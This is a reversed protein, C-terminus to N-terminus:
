RRPARRYRQPPNRRRLEPSWYVKVRPRRREPRWGIYNHIGIGDAPPRSAVSALACDYQRASRDRTELLTHVRDRVVEDDPASTWLPLYLTADPVAEDRRGTFSLCTVPPQAVFSDVGGTMISCFRLIEQRGFRPNDALLAAMEDADTDYHRFYLKTRAGPVTTLDLSLLIPVDLRFGRVAHRTVAPWVTRAGLHALARALVDPAGDPGAVSAYFWVKFQPPGHRRVEVGYMAAHPGVPDDPLFIDAVARWQHVPVRYRAVLRSMTRRAAVAAEAPGGGPVMAELAFQVSPEDEDLDAALEVPSGDASVDSLPMRSAAMEGWPDTMERFIVALEPARDGMGFCRALNEIREM